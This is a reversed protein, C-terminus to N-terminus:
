KMKREVLRSEMLTIVVENTAEILEHFACNHLVRGIRNIQITISGDAKQTLPM